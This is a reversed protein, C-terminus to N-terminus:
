GALRMAPVAEGAGLTGASEPVAAIHTAHALSTLDHSAQRAAPVLGDATLACRILDTRPTPSRYPAALHMPVWRDDWGLLPRGFVAFCVAASVPNGPLALVRAHEGGGLWLPHGPRIGVGWFVEAVGLEALAPRLHDHVGVSVGGTTVVVDAVGLAERLAALTAGRDDPVHDAMVVDAGADAAMAPIATGNVDWVQGPGLPSGVPVVEGGSILVAVRPRRRCAVFPHGAGAIAALQHASLREGRAILLDGAGADEGRLRVFAGAAAQPVTVRLGADVAREVPVVADAGRPLAAGTSIRVSQGALLMGDWPVGAASEGVVVLEGPTDEARVAWGDMASNTFPPHDSLVCLDEALERGSALRLEVPEGPLDVAHERVLELARGFSIDREGTM